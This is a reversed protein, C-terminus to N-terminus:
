TAERRNGRLVRVAHAGARSQGPKDASSTAGLCSVQREMMAVEPPSIQAHVTM